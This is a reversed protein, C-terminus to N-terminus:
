HGGCQVAYHEIILWSSLTVLYSARLETKQTVWSAFQLHEKPSPQRWLCWLQSAQMWLKFRTAWCELWLDILPHVQNCVMSIQCSKDKGYLRTYLRCLHSSHNSWWGYQDKFLIATYNIISVPISKLTLPPERLLHGPIVPTIQSLGQQCIRVCPWGM